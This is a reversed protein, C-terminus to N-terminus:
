LIGYLTATTNTAFNGSNPRLLISTIAATNSWLGATMMALATTANNESVGDVSVSKFNSSTYNPIYIEGNGFVNATYSSDNIMTNSIYSTAASDSTPSGSGTAYLRKNTYSSTSGNFIADIGTTTTSSRGSVLVKLDTYVSPISTFEINAQPTAVTVEAIKFLQLAM